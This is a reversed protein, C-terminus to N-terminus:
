DIKVDSSVLARLCIHRVSEENDNNKLTVTVHLIGQVGYSQGGVGATLVINTGYTPGGDKALLSAIESSIINVQLCGTEILVHIDDAQSHLHLTEPILHNLPTGETGTCSPSRDATTASQGGVHQDSLSIGTPNTVTHGGKMDISRNHLRSDGVQV